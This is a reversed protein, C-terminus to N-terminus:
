VRRKTMAVSIAATNPILPRTYGDAPSKVVIQAGIDGATGSKNDAVIQQGLVTSLKSAVVCGVIDNGSPARDPSKEHDTQRRYSYRVLALPGHM